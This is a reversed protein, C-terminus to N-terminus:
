AASHHPTTIQHKMTWAPYGAGGVILASDSFASRRAIFQAVVFELAYTKFIYFILLYKDGRQTDSNPDPPNNYM